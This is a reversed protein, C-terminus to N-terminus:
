LSPIPKKELHHDPVLVGEFDFPDSEIPQKPMIKETTEIM